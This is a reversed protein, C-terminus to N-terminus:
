KANEVKETTLSPAAASLWGGMEWNCGPRYMDLERQAPDVVGRLIVRIRKFDLPKLIWGDLGIRALAEHQNEFLSASVAFIPIRGNLTHSLRDPPVAGEEMARIRETAEYGNILPMRRQMNTLLSHQRPVSYAAYQIDMLICDFDRDSQVMDVGEQGNTTNVVTHGDMSLRKALIMRNIDNDQPGKAYAPTASAHVVDM